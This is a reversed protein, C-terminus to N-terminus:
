TDTYFEVMVLKSEGAIVAKAQEQNMEDVTTHSAEAVGKLKGALESVKDCSTMSFVAAVSLLVVLYRVIFPHSQCNFRLIKM